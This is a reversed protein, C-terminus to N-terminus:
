EGEIQTELEFAREIKMGKSLFVLTDISDAFGIMVGTPTLRSPPDVARVRYTWTSPLPERRFGTFNLVLPVAGPGGPGIASGNFIRRAPGVIAGPIAPGQNDRVVVAGTNRDLWYRIPGPTRTLNTVTCNFNKQAEGPGFVVPQGGNCLMRPVPLAKGGLMPLQVLHDEIEGAGFSGTGDWDGGTVPESTVAARMWVPGPLLNGNGYLFGPTRIPTTVGPALNVPINRVAWEVVGPQLVGGWSGDMNLDLLVNLWFTGGQGGPPVTLALDLFAPPPISVLVVNLGVVGDDTDTNSPSLNPQGDPDAPDNADTEASAGPGLRGGNVDATRAGDSAFLTPFAAAQAFPAPYGTSGGDPADGYEGLSACATMALTSIVILWFVLRNMM